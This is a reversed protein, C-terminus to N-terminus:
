EGFIEGKRENYTEIALRVASDVGKSSYTAGSIIDPTYDSDTVGYYTSLYGEDNVRTGLGPTEGITLVSIGSVADDKIGVLLHLGDKAYGDVTLEFACYNQEKDVIVSTIGEAEFDTLMVCASSDSLQADLGTRLKDTIVGTTDVYTLEYAFVLIGSMIMCILLLVLPPKIYEFVSTKKENAM